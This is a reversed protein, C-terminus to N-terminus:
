YTDFLKPMEVVPLEHTEPHLDYDQFMDDELSM